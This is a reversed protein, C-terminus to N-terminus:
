SSFAKVMASIFKTFHDSSINTYADDQTLDSLFVHGVQKTMKTVANRISQSDTPAEYIIFSFASKSVGYKAALGDYKAAIANYDDFSDELVVTIDTNQIAAFYEKSPITGANQITTSLGQAKAFTNVTAVYPAYVATDPSEDFFIGDLTIGIKPARWAAYALLDAQVDTVPRKGYSQHVYGFVQANAFSKLKKIGTQFNIDPDGSGPGNNPNIIITFKTSASSNFAKFVPTWDKAGDGPYSYLPVTISANIATSLSNLVGGATSGVTGVTSGIVGTSGPKVWVGRKELSSIHGKWGKPNKWPHSVIRKDINNISHWGKPKKWSDKDRKDIGKSPVKGAWGKPRKLTFDREFLNEEDNNEKSGAPVVIRKTFEATTEVEKLDDGEGKWGAPVVIRKTVDATTEMETLDNSKNKWGPPVVIRKFIGPMNELHRIADAGGGCRIKLAGITAVVSTLLLAVIVVILKKHPEAHRYKIEGRVPRYLLSRKESQTEVDITDDHDVLHIEPIKEPHTYVSM